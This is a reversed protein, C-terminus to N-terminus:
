PATLTYSGVARTETSGSTKVTWGLGLGFLGSGPVLSSEVLEQEPDFSAADELNAQMTVYVCLYGRQAQGPGACHPPNGKDSVFETHEASITSALPVPFTVVTDLESGHRPEHSDAVEFEGSESDGSPLSSVASVGPPGPEGRKGKAGPEGQLGPSGPAGAPGTSGTAGVAGTAGTAGRPGRQGRLQEVVRPSIQRTSSILYRSAALAGGSMSLVLAATAAVNAYTLRRPM